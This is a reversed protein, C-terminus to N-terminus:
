TQRVCDWYQAAVRQIAHERNVHAAAHRGIQEGAARNAALWILYDALMREENAGQDVRLCANEPIRATEEGASFIVTKGIGMMGIAIGSTEAATPYRLNVCVDIAAAWRLFEAEPLYGARLIRPHNELQPGMARELDASAFEGQVVLVADLDAEWLRRMARLVVPLRKSERLHGFVGALLTRPRVGLRQRFRLTDITSPIEPPVLLHPIEVVRAQSNHARVVRAAAPNHVIVARSATVIRKLMPHEFYRPDSASRARHKWLDVALDRSWEGYNFVFESVYDDQNLTGLFFHQLVADHLVAVGPKAIARCYIDRHLHNNGLHYLAVEADEAGVEVEGLKRMGALLAASYDAVGTRAPPLPSFFGLKM